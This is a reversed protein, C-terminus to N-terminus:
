INNLSGDHFYIFDNNNNILLNGKYDIGIEKLKIIKKVIQFKSNYITAYDLHYLKGFIM